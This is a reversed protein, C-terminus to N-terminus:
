RFSWRRNLLFSVPTVSVIAIAQAPVESLGVQVLGHLVLLNLGLAALSVTLYRASQVLPSLQHRRFTWYKNLAFNNLWAVTFAGIGALVYHWGVVHVLLSFVALNVVYGSAGVLCFRALQAWDERRAAGPRPPRLLAGPSRPAHQTTSV